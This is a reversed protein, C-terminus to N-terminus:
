FKSNLCLKLIYDVYFLHFLDYEISIGHTYKKDFM